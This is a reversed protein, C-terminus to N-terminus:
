IVTRQTWMAVTLFLFSLYQLFLARHPHHQGGLCVKCPRKVTRWYWRNSVSPVSLRHFPWELDSLTMQQQALRRPMYSKRNASLLLKVEIKLREQSIVSLKRMWVGGRKWIFSSFSPQSYASISQHWPTWFMPSDSWLSLDASVHVVHDCLVGTGSPCVSVCVSSRWPLLAVIRILSRIARWFSMHLETDFPLSGSFAVAFIYM